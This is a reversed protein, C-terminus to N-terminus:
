FTHDERSKTRWSSCSNLPDQRSSLPQRVFFCYRSTRGYLVNGIFPGPLPEHERLSQVQTHTGHNFLLDSQLRCSVSPILTKIRKFALGESRLLCWKSLTHYQHTKTVSTCLHTHSTHLLYPTKFFTAIFLLNLPITVTVTTTCPLLIISTLVGAQRYPCCLRSLPLPRTRNCTVPRFQSHRRGLCM